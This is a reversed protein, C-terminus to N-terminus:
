RCAVRNDKVMDARAEMAVRRKRRSTRSRATGARSVKCEVLGRRRSIRNRVSCVQEAVPPRRDRSAQIDLPSRRSDTAVKSLRSRSDLIVVRSRRSRSVVTVVMRRRSRRCVLNLRSRIVEVMGARSSSRLNRLAMGVRSRRSVTVLSSRRSATVLSRRRLAMSVTRRVPDIVVLQRNVM